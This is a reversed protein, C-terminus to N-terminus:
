LVEITRLSPRKSLTHMLNDFLVTVTEVSNVQTELLNELGTMKNFFRGVQFNFVVTEFM